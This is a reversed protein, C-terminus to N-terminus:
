EQPDATLFELGVKTRPKFGPWSTPTVELYTKANEDRKLYYDFFATVFHQNVNNIRWIDWVPDAFRYYDDFEKAISPAPHPAVNHLAQVAEVIAQAIEGTYFVDVGHEKILRFTKALDPQVLLAGEPLPQGNPTFVQKAAENFKYMSDVIAQALVKNVTVGKEALEIAPEILQALSMTGFKELATAVGKLTGPIGVAHGTQLATRFPLPKGEADLFMTPKAGAPAQERYDLVVIKNEKALYIMMFGGGGIGSMMPEVVNLAFQIAVAADIANGGQQLIRAGVLSALPHSTAVMASYPSPVDKPVGVSASFLTVFLALVCFVSIVCRKV